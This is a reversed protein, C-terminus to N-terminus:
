IACVGEEYRRNMEGFYEHNTFSRNQEVFMAFVDAECQGQKLMYKWVNPGIPGASSEDVEDAFRATITAAMACDYHLQNPQNIESSSSVGDHECFYCEFDHVITERDYSRDALSQLLRVNTITENDSPKLKHDLYGNYEADEENLYMLHEALHRPSEFDGILIASKPNPM